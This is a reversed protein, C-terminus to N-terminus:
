VYRWENKGLRQQLLQIEVNYNIEESRCGM